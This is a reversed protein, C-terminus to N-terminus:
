ARAKAKSVLNSATNVVANGAKTVCAAAKDLVGFKKETWLVLAVMVATQVRNATFFPNKESWEQGAKVKAKACAPVPCPIRKYWSPIAEKTTTATVADALVSSSSSSSLSCSSDSCAGANDAAKVSASSLLMAVSLAAIMTNKNQM